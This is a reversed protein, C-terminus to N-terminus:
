GINTVVVSVTVLRHIENVRRSACRSGVFCAFSRFRALKLKVTGLLLSGSDGVLKLIM